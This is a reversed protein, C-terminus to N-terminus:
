QKVIKLYYEPLQSDQLKHWKAEDIFQHFLVYYNERNDVYISFHLVMGGGDFGNQEAIIRKNSPPKVTNASVNVSNMLETIRDREENKLNIEVFDDKEKSYISLKNIPYFEYGPAVGAAYSFTQYKEKTFFSLSIVLFAIVIVTIVVAKKNKLLNGGEIIRRIRKLNYTIQYLNQLTM